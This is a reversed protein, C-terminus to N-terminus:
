RTPSLQTIQPNLQNTPSLHIVLKTTIEVQRHDESSIIKFKSNNNRTHIEFKSERASKLKSLDTWPISLPEKEETKRHLARM